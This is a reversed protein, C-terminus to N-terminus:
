ETSIPTAPAAQDLSAQLTRWPLMACKVRAPFKNVGSFVGLKGLTDLKPVGESVMEMFENFLREAEAQSKGKLAETMMSTSAKSIACGDGEFSVDAVMGEELKLYLVLHDGCLPNRGEMVRTAGEMKHFNRPRKAHDMIVQQYLDQLDDFM